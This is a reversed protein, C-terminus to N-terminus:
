EIPHFRSPIQDSDAQFRSLIQEFNPWFNTPIQESNPQLRSPLQNSDPQFNTPIGLIGLPGIPIPPSSYHVWEFDPYTARLAFNLYKNPLHLLDTYIWYPTTATTKGAADMQEVLIHAYKAWFQEIKAIMCPEYGLQGYRERTPMFFIQGVGIKNTARTIVHRTWSIEHRSLQKVTVFKNHITNVKWQWWQGKADM